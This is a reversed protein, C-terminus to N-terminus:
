RFTKQNFRANAISFQEFYQPRMDRTFSSSLGSSEVQKRYPELLIDPNRIVTWTRFAELELGADKALEYYKESAAWIIAAAASPYFELLDDPDQEAHKFFNQPRRLVKRFTDMHEPKIYKEAHDFITGTDAGHNDLDDLIEFAAAALTHISVPDGNAFYIRIASVLQRRAADLKGIKIPTLDAFDNM